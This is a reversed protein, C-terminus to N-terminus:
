PAPSHRASARWPRVLGTAMATGAVIVACGAVMWATLGEGLVLWGWGVAFAPILFTVTIANGPGVNAILRFYLIYAVGSCLVALLVLAFWATPSPMTAPWMWLAPLALVLAAFLQSGTAVALPPVGTLARRTVNAGVGYLVAAAICALVAWGAETAGPRFSAKNWALAAVGVFGIVLGAVRSRDLREGLWMWAVVAAFLPSAANFIAMLGSSLSLAAIGFLTFPLVSNVTGVLLLAGAHQRLAGVQGRLALLPLLFLAAGGVRLAALAVPGFEAAGMRLFLFSAGWIAALAVLDALDRGRMTM